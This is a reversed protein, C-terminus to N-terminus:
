LQAKALEYYLRASLLAQVVTTVINSGTIPASLVRAVRHRFRHRETVVFEGIPIAIGPDRLEKLYGRRAKNEITFPLHGLDTTLEMKVESDREVIQCFVTMGHWKFRFVIPLNGSVDGLVSGAEELAANLNVFKTGGALAAAEPMAEAMDWSEALDDQYDVSMLEM